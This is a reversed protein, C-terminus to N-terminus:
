RLEPAVVIASCSAARLVVADFGQRFKGSPEDVYSVHEFDAGEPRRHSAARQYSSAGAEGRKGHYLAHDRTTERTGHQGARDRAADGRLREGAVSHLAACLTAARGSGTALREQMRRNPLTNGHTSLATKILLVVQRHSDVVRRRPPAFGANATGGDWRHGNPWDEGLFKLYRTSLGLCVDYLYVPSHM